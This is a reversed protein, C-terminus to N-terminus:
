HAGYSFQELARQIMGDAACVRQAEAFLGLAKKCLASDPAQAQAVSYRGCMFLLLLLSVIKIPHKKM